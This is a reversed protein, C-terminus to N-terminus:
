AEKIKQKELAKKLAYNLIETQIDNPVYFIQSFVEQNKKTDYIILKGLKLGTLYCYFILQLEGRRIQLTKNSSKVYTKFEEVIGKEHDVKDPTGYIKYKGGNYEFEKYYTDNNEYGFERHIESGNKFGNKKKRKKSNKLTGNEEEMLLNVLYSVSFSKM